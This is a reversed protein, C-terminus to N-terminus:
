AAAILHRIRDELEAFRIPKSIFGTMGALTCLRKIGESSHGTMGMIPVPSSGAEVENRRIAKTADLGDVVPMEIDMLIAAYAVVAAKEIAIRGNSATDVCFGLEELFSQVVFLNEELDEVVLIAQGPATETTAM